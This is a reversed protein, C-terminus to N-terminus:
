TGTDSTAPKPLAVVNKSCECRQRLHLARERVISGNVGLSLYHDIAEKETVAEQYAIVSQRRDYQSAQQTLERLTREYSSRQAQLRLREQRENELRVQAIRAQEQRYAVLRMEEEHKRCSQIAQQKDEGSLVSSGNISVITGIGTFQGLRCHQLGDYIPAEASVLTVEQRGVQISGGGHKDVLAFVELDGTKEDQVVLTRLVTKQSLTLSNQQLDIIRNYSRDYIDYSLKREEFISNLLHKQHFVNKDIIEQVRAVNLTEVFAM